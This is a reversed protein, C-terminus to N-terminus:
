KCRDQQQQYVQIWNARKEEVTAGTVSLKTGIKTPDYIGPNYGNLLESFDDFGDGDTDASAPDTNFKSEDAATLYDQDMDAYRECMAESVSKESVSSGTSSDNSTDDRSDRVFGIVASVILGIAALVLILRLLFRQRSQFQEFSSWRRKWALRRGRVILFISAFFSWAGVLLFLLVVPIVGVLASMFVSFIALFLPPLLLGLAWPWLKNGFAWIVPNLFAGLSWQTLYAAHETSLHGYGSQEKLVGGAKLDLGARRMLVIGMPIGFLSLIAAAGLVVRLITGIIVGSGGASSLQVILFSAIAYVPLLGLLVLTSIIILALGLRRKSHSPMLYIIIGGGQGGGM